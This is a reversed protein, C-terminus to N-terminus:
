VTVNKSMKRQDYSQFLLNYLTSHRRLNFLLKNEFDELCIERSNLVDSLERRGGKESNHAFVYRHSVRVRANSTCDAYNRM